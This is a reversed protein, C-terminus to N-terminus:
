KWPKWPKEPMSSRRRWAMYDVVTPRLAIFALWGALSIDKPLAAPGVRTLGQRSLAM